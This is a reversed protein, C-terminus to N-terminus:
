GGTVEETQWLLWRRSLLLDESTSHSSLLDIKIGQNDAPKRPSHRSDPLLLLYYPKGAEILANILRATHRFHVNEDILGHVLLLKGMINDVHHMVSSRKYGVPNSDPTGMYRKTYYTDYGDHHTVPAGSVAVQFTEPAKALCMAGLHGYLFVVYRDVIAFWYYYVYIVSLSILVAQILAEKWRFPAWMGSKIVIEKM